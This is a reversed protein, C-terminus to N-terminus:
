LGAFTNKSVQYPPTEFAYHWVINTPNQPPVGVVWVMTGWLVAFTNNSVRHKPIYLALVTAQTGPNRGLVGYGELEYALLPTKPYTTDHHKFHVNGFFITQRNSHRGSCGYWKVGAWTLLPTKAYRPHHHKFHLTGFSNSPNVPPSGFVQVVTGWLGMPWCLHKQISPINTNSICLELCVHNTKRPPAGVVWVM